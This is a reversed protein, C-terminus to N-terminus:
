EEIVPLKILKYGIKDLDRIERIGSRSFARDHMDHRLMRYMYLVAYMLERVQKFIIASFWVFLQLAACHRTMCTPLLLM